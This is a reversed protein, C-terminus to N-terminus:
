HTVHEAKKGAFSCSLVELQLSTQRRKHKIKAKQSPQSGFVNETKLKLKKVQVSIYESVM